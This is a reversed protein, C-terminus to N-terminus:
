SVVVAIRGQLNFRCFTFIVNQLFTPEKHCWSRRIDFKKLNIEYIITYNKFLAQIESAVPMQNFNLINKWPM